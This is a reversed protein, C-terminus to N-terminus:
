NAIGGINQVARNRRPHRFLLFDALPVLPAGEGGAAIDRPRFDAVVPIGTREAIVSAEAIQLTSRLSRRGFPRGVPLHCVTQGHSGILDITSLPISARRALRLVASAFLEGLVFNLHCLNDLRATRRDCTRLVARRIEPPYPFTAFAIVRVSHAGLDAIAADVGDASTGSMLGSVRLTKKGAIRALSKRM